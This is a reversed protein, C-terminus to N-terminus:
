EHHHSSSSAACANLLADCRYISFLVRSMPFTVNENDAGEWGSSRSRSQRSSPRWSVARRRTPRETATTPSATANLTTAKGKMTSNCESKDMDSCGLQIYQMKGRFDYGKSMCSKASSSCETETIVLEDSRRNMYEDSSSRPTEWCTLAAATTVFFTMIALKAYAEMTRQGPVSDPSSPGTLALTNSPLFKGVGM